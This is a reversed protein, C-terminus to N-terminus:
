LNTLFDEKTEKEFFPSLFNLMDAHATKDLHDLLQFIKLLEEKQSKFVEYTPWLEDMSKGRWQLFRQRVSDIPIQPHPVAYPANVLGCYDFDYPVPTPAGDIETQVWKINHGKSLNWDTNGIMYQFLVMKKYQEKDLRTIKYKNPNVLNGGLRAAMEKNDEILFGFHTGDPAQGSEDVYRIKALRVRFSKDTLQNFLKYTLYEKLVFEDEGELCHTVLKYDDFGSFGKEVLDEKSFELKIPPFDCIRRRTVGRRALEIAFNLISDGKEVRITAPHYHDDAHKAAFLHALDGTIELSILAEEEYLWNFISADTSNSPTNDSQCNTFILLLFLFCLHTPRKM